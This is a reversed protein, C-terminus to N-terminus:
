QGSGDALSLKEARDATILADIIEDLDGNLVQRKYVDLHTYSVADSDYAEGTSTNTKGVSLAKVTAFNEILGTLIDNEPVERSGGEGYYANFIANQKLGYETYLRFSDESVGAKQLKDKQPEWYNTVSSELVQQDDVTLTLSLETFLNNVAQRKYVDLRTYSVPKAM